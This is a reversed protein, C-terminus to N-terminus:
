DAMAPAGGDGVVVQVDAAGLADALHSPPARDTVLVDVEALACVLALSRHDFKSADCLVVIQGAQDIFARKVECDELSYDYFGSQILGSVGIFVRDLFYTRLQAVAAPGVVSLESDRVLGGPLYVPSRGASLQIAARLNNTFIRLDSRRGLEEALALATTGVDLGITEGPRVLAAAARAVVEKAGANARRRREFIPEEADFVERRVAGGHTRSVLGKEELVGFDRRVTMESVGLRPAVNSVTVFGDRAVAHLIQSQRAAAPVRAPKAERQEHYPRRM